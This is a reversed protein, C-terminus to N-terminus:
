AFSPISNPQWKILKGGLKRVEDQNHTVFIGATANSLLLELVDDILQFRINDDLSNFPEDFMILQPEVALTRALAVRQAEGGSLTRVDRNAYGPLHVLTLLREVAQQQVSKPRRYLGYAVNQGVNLNEFLYPQQFM